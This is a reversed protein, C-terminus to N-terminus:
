TYIFKVVILLLTYIIMRVKGHEYYRCIGRDRYEEVQHEVDDLLELFHPMKDENINTATSMQFLLFRKVSLM